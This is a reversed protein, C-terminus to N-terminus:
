STRLLTEFDDRRCHRETHRFLGLMTYSGQCFDVPAARTMPQSTLNGTDRCHWSTLASVLCAPALALKILTKPDSRLARAEPSGLPLQKSKQDNTCLMIYSELGRMGTGNALVSVDFLLDMDFDVRFLWFLM